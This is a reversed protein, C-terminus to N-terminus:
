PDPAMAQCNMVIISSTMWAKEHQGRAQTMHGLPVLTNKLPNFELIDDYYHSQDDYYQGGAIIM